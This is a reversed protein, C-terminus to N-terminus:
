RAPLRSGAGVVVFAAWQHPAAFREDRMVTMQARRLSEAPSRGAALHRHFEVMLKETARSSAKWQSVVTAPCGAALFAWSLGVVGEGGSIRGRGTECASLVAVDANLDLAVVERAELFGDDSGAEGPALLLASYLPWAPDAFAHTAFHLVRARRAEARVASERAADGTFTRAAPYFRAITQVEKLAEPLAGFLYDRYM